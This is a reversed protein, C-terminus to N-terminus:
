AKVTQGARSPSVWTASSTRNVVEDHRILCRIIANIQVLDMAYFLVYMELAQLSMLFKEKLSLHEDPWVTWLVYVTIILYAGLLIAATHYYISVYILYLLILPELLLMLESVFAMPLRYFALLYSYKSADDNAVVYSYKLLNQLCGMKWRLRQQMLQKYTQVGETMAVVDAAYVIRYDRNGLHAVLKMSLGIDETQTDTDYFGVERLVSMRYTSAVGGVIFETNTLTYFKKSRYGILHEFRQMRSILTKGDMVRVNAAVGVVKPDRFYKVAREIAQPHLISDADLCMVLKGKAYNRIGNNMASAKGANAQRVLRVRPGSINQRLYQRHLSAKRGNRAMYETVGTKSLRSAFRRVIAATNDTSGDDVVIVEIKSYSNALISNLTNEIGASENHAPVVVSVLPRTHQNESRRTRNGLFRRADYLNAGIVYLGLHIMNIMNCVVLIYFMFSFPM